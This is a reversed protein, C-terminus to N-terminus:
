NNEEGYSFNAKFLEDKTYKASIPNRKQVFDKVLNIAYELDSAKIALKSTTVQINIDDSNETSKLLVVDPENHIDSVGVVINRTVSM